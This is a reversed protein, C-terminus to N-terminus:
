YNIGTKALEAELDFDEESVESKAWFAAYPDLCKGPGDSDGFLWIREWPLFDVMIDQEGNSLHLVQGVYFFVYGERTVIEDIKNEESKKLFTIPESAGDYIKKAKIGSDDVTFSILLNNKLIAAYTAHSKMGAGGYWDDILSVEKVPSPLVIINTKKGLRELSICNKVFVLTGNVTAVALSDEDPELFDFSFEKVKGEGERVDAFVNSVTITDKEQLFNHEDCSFSCCVRDKNIFWIVNNKTLVFHEGKLIVPSQEDSRTISVFNAYRKFIYEKNSYQQISNIVYEMNEEHSLFEDPTEIKPLDIAERMNSDSFLSCAVIIIGIVAAVVFISIMLKREFIFDKM